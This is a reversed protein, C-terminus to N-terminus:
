SLCPVSIQKAFVKYINYVPLVLFITVPDFAPISILYKCSMVQFYVFSLFTLCLLSHSKPLLCLSIHCIAIFVFYIRAIGVRLLVKQKSSRWHISEAVLFLHRFCVWMIQFRIGWNTTCILGCLFRAFCHEICLIYYDLLIKKKMHQQLQKKLKVWNHAFRWFYHLDFLCTVGFSWSKCLSLYLM